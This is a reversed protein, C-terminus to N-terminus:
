EGVGKERLQEAIADHLVALREYPLPGRKGTYPNARELLAWRMVRKMGEAQERTLTITVREQDTVADEEIRQM